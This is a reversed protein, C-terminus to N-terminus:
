GHKFLRPLIQPRLARHVAEDLEDPTPLFRAATGLPEVGEAPSSKPDQPTGSTLLELEDTDVLVAATGHQTRRTLRGDNLRRNITRRSIGYRSIAEPISILM